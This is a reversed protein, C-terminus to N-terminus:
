LRRLRSYSQRALQDISPLQPSYSAAYTRGAAMQRQMCQAAAPASSTAVAAIALLGIRALM